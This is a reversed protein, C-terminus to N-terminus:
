PAYAQKLTSLFHTESPATLFRRYGETEFTLEIINDGGKKGTVVDNPTDFHYIILRDFPLPKGEDRKEESSVEEFSNIEKVIDNQQRFNLTYPVGQHVVVMGRVDDPDLLLDPDGVWIVQLLMTSAFMMAILFIAAVAFLYGSRM